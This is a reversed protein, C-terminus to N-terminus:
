PKAVGGIGADRLRRFEELYGHTAFFWLTKPGEDHIEVSTFRVIYGWYWPAFEPVGVNAWPVIRWSGKHKYELGRPSGFIARTCLFIRAILGLPVAITAFLLQEKAGGKTVLRFVVEVFAIFCAALMSSIVFRVWYHTFREYLPRRDAGRPEVM